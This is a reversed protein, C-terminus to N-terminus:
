CKTKKMKLYVDPQEGGTEGQCKTSNEDFGPSNIFDKCIGLHFSLHSLYFWWREAGLDADLM